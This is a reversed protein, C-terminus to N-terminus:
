GVIGRSLGHSGRKKFNSHEQTLAQVMSLLSAM